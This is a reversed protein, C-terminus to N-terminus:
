IKKDTIKDKKPDNTQEDTDSKFLPNNKISEKITKRGAKITIIVLWLFSLGFDILWLKYVKFYINVVGIGWLIATTVVSKYITKNELQFTVKFFYYFLLLMVVIGLVPTPYSLHGSLSFLVALSAYFFINSLNKQLNRDQIDSEFVIFLTILSLGSIVLLFTIWNNMM